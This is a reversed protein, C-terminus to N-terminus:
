HIAQPCGGDNYQRKEAGGLEELETKVGRKGCVLKTRKHSFGTKPQERLLSYVLKIIAKHTIITDNYANQLINILCSINQQKICVHCVLLKLHFKNRSLLLLSFYTM